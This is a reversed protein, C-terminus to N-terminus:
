SAGKAAAAKTKAAAPAAKKPAARKAAPKRTAAPKTGNAKSTSKSAAPKKTATKRPASKRPAAKKAPKTAPKADPPSVQVQPDPEMPDKMTQAFEEMSKRADELPAFGKTSTLDKIEDIEADKLADNFQRQFDGAMRKISGLTKGFQRLMGPLDKPGVVIIAVCAIVLMESWAFNSFM